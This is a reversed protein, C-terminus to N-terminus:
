MTQVRQWLERVGLEDLWREIYARDLKDEQVGIIGRVDRLQQESQSQKAWELKALVTDEATAVFVSTGLIARQSRRDFQAQSFPGAPRYILDAKWSTSVEIVNFQGRRRYEDRAVNADFYVDQQSLLALLHELTAPTPDIVLDVDRTSRSVGHASSAFSGVLMHPVAARNIATILASLFTALGSGSPGAM